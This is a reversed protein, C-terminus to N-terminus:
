HEQQKITRTITRAITITKTITKTRARKRTFVFGHVPRAPFLLFGFQVPRASGFRVSTYVISYYLVHFTYM